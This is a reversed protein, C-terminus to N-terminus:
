QIIYFCSLQSYVNLHPITTAPLHCQQLFALTQSQSMSKQHYKQNTGDFFYSNTVFVLKEKVIVIYM